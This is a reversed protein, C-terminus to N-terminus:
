DTAMKDYICYVFALSFCYFLAELFNVIYANFKMFITQVQSVSIDNSTCIVVTIGDYFTSPLVIVMKKYCLFM